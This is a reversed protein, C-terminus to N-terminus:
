CDTLFPELFRKMAANGKIEAMVHDAHESLMKYHDSEHNKRAAEDLAMRFAAVDDHFAQLVKLVSAEQTQRQSRVKLPVSCAPCKRISGQHGAHHEILNLLKLPCILRCVRTRYCRSSVEKRLADVIPDHQRLQEAKVLLKQRSPGQGM